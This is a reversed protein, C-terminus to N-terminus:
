PQSKDVVRCMVIFYMKCTVKAMKKGHEFSQMIQQIFNLRRLQIDLATWTQNRDKKLCKKDLIHGTNWAERPASTTFFEGALVPSVLSTTKIGPHPFAGPLFHMGVGINKGSLNWPYLLRHATSLWVCSLVVGQWLCM